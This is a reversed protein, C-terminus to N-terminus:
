VHARGIERIPGAEHMGPAMIQAMVPLGPRAARVDEPRIRAILVLPWDQPVVHLAPQAPQLVAGRNTVALGHVRGAVPARLTLRELRDILASHREALELARIGADRLEAEARARHDAELSLASQALEAMVGRVRAVEALLAGRTGALRAADRRLVAMRATQTLGQSLLQEQVALEEAVLRIETEAAEIQAELGVIQAGAQNRRQELQAIQRRLANSRAHFLRTQGEVLVRAEESESMAQVLFPPLALAELDEREASLRAIRALTGLYHSEIIALEFDSGGPDLRLLPAGADVTQGEEVLIDAIMGGAAHQVIQRDQMVAIRAPAIVAGELRATAAWGGFGAVLLASALMGLAIPRRASWGAAPDAGCGPTAAPDPAPLTM